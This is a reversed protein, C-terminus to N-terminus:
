VARGAPLGRRSQRNSTENGRAVTVDVRLVRYANQASPEFPVRERYVLYMVRLDDGSMPPRIEHRRHRTEGHDLDMSFRSLREEETVRGDDVRQLKVVVLYNTREHEQNTVGLIVEESEGRTFERPVAATTLNGNEDEAVLYTETFPDGSSSPVAAAFAVSGAFTVLSLVLLGRVLWGTSDRGPGFVLWRYGSAELDRPLVVPQFLAFRRMAPTRARRVFAIITLVIIPGGVTALLPIPRLSLPTFNLEFALVPVLAVSLVVSLALREVTNVGYNRPLAAHIERRLPDFAQSEVNERPTRRPFIAAVLAYGPLVLLFPLVLAARVVWPPDAVVAGTVLGVYLVMGVLDAYWQSSEDSM